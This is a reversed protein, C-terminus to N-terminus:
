KKIKESAAKAKKYKEVTASIKTKIQPEDVKALAAQEHAVAHDFDGQEFCVRALTDLSAADEGKTVEVSRQALKQALPLDRNKLGPAAVITWALRNHMAADDPFQQDLEAALKYAAAEDHKQALIVGFKAAGVQSAIEPQIKAIEDLSAVVKDWDGAKGAAMMQQQLEQMRTTRQAQAAADFKGAIVQEVVHDMHDMPHGIWAIKSQQNIVFACPIGNQGAAQLWTTAVSGAGGGSTDDMAVHYGMKDGMQKVFPEVGEPQREWVSVGIFTAKDGFKKAMETLHPISMRCPGCWTAWCEVVYVKGKEFQPVAAGKVWKSVKLPPAPDGVKLTVEASAVSVGILLAVVGVLPSWRRTNM